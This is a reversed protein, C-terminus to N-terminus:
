TSLRKVGRRVSMWALVFYTRAKYVLRKFFSDQENIVAINERLGDARRSSSIGTSSFICVSINIKAFKAKNLFCQKFFKFDASMKYKEDFKMVKLLSSKSFTSQHCFPIHHMVKLRDPAERVWLAGDAKKVIVNGYVVDYERSALLPAVERLTTREAFTDGSNMFNIYDGSAHRIGKNMANYIGTDKESIVMAISSAYEKIISLTGDTSGGDVVIYEVHKYTQGVVSEITGRIGGADNYVVTVVTILPKENKM